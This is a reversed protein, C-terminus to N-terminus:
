AGEPREGTLPSDEERVAPLADDGPAALLRAARARSIGYAGEMRLALFGRLHPSHGSEKLCRRAQDLFDDIPLAPIGRDRSVIMSVRRFLSDGKRHGGTRGGVLGAEELARHIDRPTRLGDSEILLCRMADELAAPVSGIDGGIQRRLSRGSSRLGKRVLRRRLEGALAGRTVGPFKGLYLAAMARFLEGPVREVPRGRGARLHNGM